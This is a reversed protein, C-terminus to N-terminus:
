GEKLRFSPTVGAGTFGDFAGDPIEDEAGVGVEVGVIEDGDTEEEDGRFRPGEAENTGGVAAGRTDVGVAAELEIETEDAKDDVLDVEAEGVEGDETDVREPTSFPELTSEDPDNYVAAASALM